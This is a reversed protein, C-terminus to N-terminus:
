SRPTPGPVEAVAHCRAVGRDKGFSTWLRFQTWDSKHPRPGYLRKGEIKLAYDLLPLMGIPTQFSQGFLEIHWHYLFLGDRTAEFIVTREM